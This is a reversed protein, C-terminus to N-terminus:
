LLKRVSEVFAPNMWNQASIVKQVVKGKADIIYTEPIQFTGYSASIDWSPDRATEFSVQFQDLFQKYLRPNADMSIGVVVVGDGKFQQHFSELSPVEQVCPACWAAWFNLVLLKGGFDTPTITKGDDTVISFKPATDGVKIIRPELSGSIKWALAVVMVALM